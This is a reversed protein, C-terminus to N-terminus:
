DLGLLEDETLTRQSGMANVLETQLNPHIKRVSGESIGGTLNDKEPPKILKGNGDRYNKWDLIGLKCSEIRVRGTNLPMTTGKSTKNETDVEGLTITGYLKDEMLSGDVGDLCRLTFVPWLTKPIIYEGDKQERFAVPVYPWKDDLDFAFGGAKKLKAKLEPTLTVDPMNGEM